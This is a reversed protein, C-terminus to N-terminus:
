PVQAEDNYAWRLAFRNMCDPCVYWNQGHTLKEGDGSIWEIEDCGCYPCYKTEDM